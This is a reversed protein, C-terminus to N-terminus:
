TKFCNNKTETQYTMFKNALDILWRLARPLLRKPTGEPESLFFAIFAAPIGASRRLLDDVTQEKAVTREMLQEMWSEPLKSLRPNDSCLLRNCLATFGARTKDIAGNHKMKMLVELFHAGITELQKFDLVANDTMSADDHADSLAGCERSNDSTPLPVKRIITGRENCALLWGYCGSCLPGCGTGIELQKKRLLYLFIWTLVRTGYTLLTMWIMWLIRLMRLFHWADASVVSLAMLTIRTVLELLKELAHKMGYVNNLVIDSNWDLEEFTYRLTLLVGMFLATGARM